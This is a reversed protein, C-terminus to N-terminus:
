WLGYNKRLLNRSFYSRSRCLVTSPLKNNNKNNNNNNSNNVLWCPRLANCMDIVPMFSSTTQECRLTATVHMYLEGGQKLPWFFSVISLCFTLFVFFFRMIQNCITIKQQRKTILNLDLTDLFFAAFSPSLNQIRVEVDPESYITHLVGSYCFIQRFRKDGNEFSKLHGDVTLTCWAWKFSSDTPLRVTAQWVKWEDAAQGCEVARAPNWEGLEPISGM